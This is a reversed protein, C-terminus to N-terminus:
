LDGLASSCSARRGDRTQCIAEGGRGGDGSFLLVPDGQAGETGVAPRKCVKGELPGGSDSRNKLNRYCLRLPPPPSAASPIDKLVRTEKQARLHEGFGWGWGWGGDVGRGAFELRERVRARIASRDEVRPRRSTVRNCARRGHTTPFPPPLQLRVCGSSAFNPPHSAHQPGWGTRHIGCLASVDACGSQVRAHIKELFPQSTRAPKGFRVRSAKQRSSGSLGRKTM